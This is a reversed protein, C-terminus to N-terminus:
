KRVAPDMRTQVLKPTVAIAGTPFHIGEAANGEICAKVCLGCGVCKNPDVRPEIGGVIANHGAATCVQECYRPCTDDGGYPRCLDQRYCATGLIIRNKVRLPNHQIAGTPCVRGCNNCSPSCGAVLPNVYPTGYAAIGASLTALHIAPGPCAEACLGCRICRALFDDGPLAGPPRLRAESKRLGLPLGTALLGASVCTGAIFDRRGPRVPVPKLSTRYEIADVPCVRACEGCYTCDTTTTFDDTRIADFDCANACRKCSTCADTRVRKFLSFRSVLSLLAGSPCLVNCWFRERILCLLLIVGLVWLWPTALIASVEYLGAAERCARTLMPMPTVFGAVGLGLASVVVVAALLAFKIFRLRPFSTGSRRAGALGVVDILTGLPCVHSCFVRPFVLSSAVVAVPVLIWISASRSALFAALSALPDILCLLFVPAWPHIPEVNLQSTSPRPPTLWFFTALFGVLVLGQVIRRLLIRGRNRPM